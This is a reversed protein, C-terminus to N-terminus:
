DVCDWCVTRAESDTRCVQGSTLFLSRKKGSWVRQQAAVVAASRSAGALRVARVLFVTM